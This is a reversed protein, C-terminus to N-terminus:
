PEERDQRLLRLLARCRCMLAAHEYTLQEIAFSDQAERFASEALHLQRMVAALEAKAARQEREATTMRRFM